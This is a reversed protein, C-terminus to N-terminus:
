FRPRHWGGRIEITTGGEGGEQRREVSSREELSVLNQFREPYAVAAVIAIEVPPQDLRRHRQVV